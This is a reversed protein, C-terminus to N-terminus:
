GIKGIKFIGSSRMALILETSFFITARGCSANKRFITISIYRGECLLYFLTQRQRRNNAIRTCKIKLKWDWRIKMFNLM